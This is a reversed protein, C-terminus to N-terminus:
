LAGFIRYLVRGLSTTAPDGYRAEGESARVEVLLQDWAPPATGAAIPLTFSIEVREGPRVHPLSYSRVGDADDSATSPREVKGFARVRVPLLAHDLPARRLRVLVEPQERTGTNGVELSYLALCGHSTCARLPPEGAYLVERDPLQFISAGGGLLALVGAAVLVYKIPRWM